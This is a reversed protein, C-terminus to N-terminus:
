RASTLLASSDALRDFSCRRAIIREAVYTTYGCAPVGELCLRVRYSISAGFAHELPRWPRFQLIADDAKIRGHSLVESCHAKRVFKLLFQVPQHPCVAVDNHSLRFKKRVARDIALAQVKRNGSIVWAIAATEEWDKMDKDLEFSTAIVVTDEEPRTAAAGIGTSAM